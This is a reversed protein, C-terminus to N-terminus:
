LVFASGIIGAVTLIVLSVRFKKWRALFAQRREDTIRLKQLKLVLWMAVIAGDIAILVYTLNLIVRGGFESLSFLAAYVLAPWALFHLWRLWNNPALATLIAALIGYMVFTYIFMLAHQGFGFIDSFIANFVIFFGSMIGIFLAVISLLIIGAKSQM